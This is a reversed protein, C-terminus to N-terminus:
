SLNTATIVPTTPRVKTRQQKHMSCVHGRVDAIQKREIANFKRRINNCRRLKRGHASPAKSSSTSGQRTLTRVSSESSATDTREVLTRYLSTTTAKRHHYAVIARRIRSEQDKEEPFHYHLADRLDTTGGKPTFELDGVDNRNLFYDLKGVETDSYGLFQLIAKQIWSKYDHQSPFRFYLADRLEKSHEPPNFELLGNGNRTIRYYFDGPEESHTSM